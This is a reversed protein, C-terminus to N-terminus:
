GIGRMVEAGPAGENALDALLSANAPPFKYRSLDSVEIWRCCAAERAEPRGELCVCDFPYLKVRREAYQHEISPRARIVEVEIGLEERTERVVCEEPTEGSRCKGGPLEWYGGLHVNAVRRSILLRHDSWVLAIAVDIPSASAM